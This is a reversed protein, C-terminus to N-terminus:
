SKNFLRCPISPYTKMKPSAINFPKTLILSIFSRIPLLNLNKLFCHDLFTNSNAMFGSIPPRCGHLSDDVKVGMSTFALVANYQVINSRFHKAEQSEGTYLNYLLAPPIRLPALKVKGHACCAQFEPQGIRSSSVREEIWHLAKCHPCEVNMFGLDNACLNDDVPLRAICFSSPHEM